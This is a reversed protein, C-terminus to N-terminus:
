HLSRFVLLSSSRRNKKTTKKSFFEELDGEAFAMHEDSNYFCIVGKKNSSIFLGKRLISYDTLFEALAKRKKIYNKGKGISFYVAPNGDFSAEMLQIAIERDSRSM